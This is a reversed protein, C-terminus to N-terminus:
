LINIEASIHDGSFQIHVFPVKFEFINRIDRTNSSHSPPLSAYGYNIYIVITEHVNINTIGDIFIRKLSSIYEIDILSQVFLADRMKFIHSGFIAQVNM